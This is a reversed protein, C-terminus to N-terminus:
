DKEDDSLGALPIERVEQDPKAYSLRALASSKHYRDLGSVAVTDLAELDVLGDDQIASEETRVWQIEGIVFETDNHTITAVEVLKVGMSLKSESVFPAHFGDYREATLGTEEFESLERAYRASTQHAAKYIGAHVQNVTYVGTDKINDLTHRDVSHPRLIFGLLPPNTGLHVVSSIIALNDNNKRSSTGIMNASKFGSLSNIFQVRKRNDM